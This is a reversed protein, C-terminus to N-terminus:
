WSNRMQNKGATDEEIYDHYIGTLEENLVFLMDRVGETNKYFAELKYIAAQILLDPYAVSWFSQSTDSSLPRQFFSGTIIVDYDTDAMPGIIISKIVDQSTAFEDGIRSVDSAYVTPRGDIPTSSDYTGYKRLIYEYSVHSLQILRESDSGVERLLVSHIARANPIEITSDGQGVGTIIRARAKEIDMRSDLFRQGAQIFFNAGIDVYDTTNVVLDYRGTMQIFKTRIELLTM